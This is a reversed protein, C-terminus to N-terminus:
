IRPLLNIGLSQASKIREILAAEDFTFRDGVVALMDADLGMDLAAQAQEPHICLLSVGSIDAGDLQSIDSVFIRIEQPKKQHTEFDFKCPSFDYM